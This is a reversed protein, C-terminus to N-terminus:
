LKYIIRYHLFVRILYTYVCSRHVRVEVGSLPDKNKIRFRLNGLYEALSFFILFLYLRDAQRWTIYQADRRQQHPLPIIIIFENNKESLKKKYANIKARFCM